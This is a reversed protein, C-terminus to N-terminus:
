KFLDPYKKIADSRLKAQQSDQINQGQEEPDTSDTNIRAAKGNVSYSGAANRSLYFIYEGGKKMEVYGDKKFKTKESGAQILSVPESIEIYKTSQNFDDPAKIVKEIEVKGLSAFDMMTGDPLAAAKQTREHFDTIPTAVIILESFEELESLQTFIISNTQVSVERYSMMTQYRFLMGAGILAAMIVSIRSIKKNMKQMGKM